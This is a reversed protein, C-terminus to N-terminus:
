VAKKLANKYIIMREMCQKIRFDRVVKFQKWKLQINMMRAM